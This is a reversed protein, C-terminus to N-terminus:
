QNEKKVLFNLNNTRQTYRFHPESLNDQRVSGSKCFIPLRTIGIPSRHVGFVRSSSM